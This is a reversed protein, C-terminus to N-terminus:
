ASFAAGGRFARVDPHGPSGHAGREACASRDACTRAGRSRQPLQRRARRLALRPVPLGLQARRRELAGRLGPAPVEGLAPAVRRDDDRFAAIKHLGRRLVAGEGAPLQDLGEIEGASVWDSYYPVFNLTRACSRMRQACRAAIRRMCRAGRAVRGDVILDAVILGAITGHTLGNGSDGTAVYVNDAVGPNHGLFALGDIPEIVQGSWRYGVDLAMPFHSRAWSELVEYHVLTSDDQGTKRDEGGVLM